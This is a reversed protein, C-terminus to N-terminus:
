VKRDRIHKNIEYKEAVQFTAQNLMSDYKFGVACVNPM